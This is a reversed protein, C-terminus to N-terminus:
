SPYNTTHWTQEVGNVYLRVRNSATSQTTDIRYVVHFWASFDRFVANTASGPSVGGQDAKFSLADCPGDSPAFNMASLASDGARFIEQGSSGCNVLKSRKIWCAFTFTRRNGSTSPTRNLYAQDGSNFRLSREIQYGGVGKRGFIVSGAGGGYAALGALPSQKVNNCDKM